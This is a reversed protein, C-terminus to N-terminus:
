KDALAKVKERDVNIGLGSGKPTHFEGSRIELPTELVDGDQAYYTSDMPYRFGPASSVGHIIAATTIGLDFSCHHAFPLNAEQGLGDIRKLGSIGEAVGLDFIAIDIADEKIAQFLSHPVYCEENIGIPTKTRRRLSALMSFSAIRIPEEIYELNLDEVRKLFQLAGVPSFAQNADVRISVEHGVRERIMCLREIDFEMDLGVKVKLHRYGESIIQEIKDRTTSHDLIGLCYAIEISERVKGGLLLYIPKELAKGIIDWCAVDVGSALYASSILQASVNFRCTDLLKQTSFPDMGKIKPGVEMELLNRMVESPFISHYEGWGDIGDDTEIRVLTKRTYEVGVPNVSARYPSIGGKGIPVLPVKVPYATLNTIKM